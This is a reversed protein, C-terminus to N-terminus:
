CFEPLKSSESAFDPVAPHHSHWLQAPDTGRPGDPLADSGDLVESLYNIASSLGQRSSLGTKAWRVSKEGFLNCRNVLLYDWRM